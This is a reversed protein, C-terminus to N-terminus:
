FLTANLDLKKAGVMPALEQLPSDLLLPRFVRKQRAQKFAKSWQKSARTGITRPGYRTM